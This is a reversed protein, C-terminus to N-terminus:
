WPPVENMAQRVRRSDIGIDSTALLIPAPPFLHEPLPETGPHDRDPADSPTAPRPVVVHVTGGTAWVSARRRNAVAAAVVAPVVRDAPPDDTTPLLMIREHLAAMGIVQQLTNMSNIYRDSTRVVFHQRRIQLQQGIRRMKISVGLDWAALGLRLRAESESLKQEPPLIVTHGGRLLVRNVHAVAELDSYPAANNVPGRSVM